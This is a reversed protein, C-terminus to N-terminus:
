GAISIVSDYHAVNCCINLMTEVGAKHAREVVDDLDETFKDGHLNVHSDVLM